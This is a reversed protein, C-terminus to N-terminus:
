DADKKSGTGMVGALEMVLPAISLILLALTVAVKANRPIPASNLAGFGEASVEEAADIQADDLIGSKDWQKLALKLLRANRADPQYDYGELEGDRAADKAAESAGQEKEDLAEYTIEPSTAVAERVIEDDNILESNM